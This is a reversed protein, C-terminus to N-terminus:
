TMSVHLSYSGRCIKQAGERKIEKIRTSSRANSSLTHQSNLEFFVRYNYVSFGDSQFSAQKSVSKPTYVNAQLDKFFIIQALEVESIPM